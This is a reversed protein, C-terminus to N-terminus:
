IKALKVGPMEESVAFPLWHRDHANYPFDDIKEFPCGTANTHKTPSM